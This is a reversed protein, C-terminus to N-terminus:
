RWQPPPLPMVILGKYNGDADYITAVPQAFVDLALGVLLMVLIFGLMWKIM